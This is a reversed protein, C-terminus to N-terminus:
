DIWILRAQGERSLGISVALRRMPWWLEAKLNWAWYGEKDRKILPYEQRHGIANAHLEENIALEIRESVLEEQNRISCNFPESQPKPQSHPDLSHTHLAYEGLRHFAFEFSPSRPM